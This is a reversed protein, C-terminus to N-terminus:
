RADNDQFAAPMNWMPLMRRLDQSLDCMEQRLAIKSMQVVSRNTSIPVLM